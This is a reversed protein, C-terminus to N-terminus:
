FTGHREFAELPDVGERVLERIEDESPRRPVNSCREPFVSWATSTVSSWTEPGSRWAAWV